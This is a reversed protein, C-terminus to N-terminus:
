EYRVEVVTFTRGGAPTRVRVEDDLGRGLLAAGIPSRWSIRRSAGDIEDEGVLRYEHQGGDKDELVVTAGFFIKTGRQEKPDVVVAADIRKALFGMRRDIERLKRKGYIYEANESRDGQAAADSVEQVIRPREVTRLRTIEDVLRRFGDPTIYNPASTATKERGKGQDRTM